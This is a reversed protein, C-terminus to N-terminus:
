PAPQAALELGHKYVTDLIANVFDASEPTGFKRTLRIAEAIAVKPPLSSDHLLEFLGLRLACKEASSIREFQYENSAARIKEDIEGLCSLVERARASADLVSRKTVKLEGMLMLATGDLEEADFAASFLLLFVIERFKQPPLPM